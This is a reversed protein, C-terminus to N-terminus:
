TIVSLTKERSLYKTNKNDGQFSISTTWHRSRNNMRFTFPLQYTSYYHLQNFINRKMGIQIQDGIKFLRNFKLAFNMTQDINAGITLSLRHPAKPPIFKDGSTLSSPPDSGFLDVSRNNDRQILDQMHRHGATNM